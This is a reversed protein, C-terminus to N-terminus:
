AMGEQICIPIEIEHIGLECMINPNSAPDFQIKFDVFENKPLEKVRDLDCFFGSEMMSVHDISFNVPMVGSNSVRVSATQVQGLIIPGFDLVYEPLFFRSAKNQRLITQPSAAKASEVMM